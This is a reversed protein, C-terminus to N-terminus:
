FTVFRKAYVFCSIQTCARRSPLLPCLIQTCVSHSWDILPHMHKISCVYGHNFAETTHKRFDHCCIGWREAVYFLVYVCTYMVLTLHIRFFSVFVQM